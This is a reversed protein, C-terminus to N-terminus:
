PSSGVAPHGGRSPGRANGVREVLWEIRNGSSLRVPEGRAPDLSAHTALWYPDDRKEEASAADPM